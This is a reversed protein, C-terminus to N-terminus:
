SNIILTSLPHNKVILIPYILDYENTAKVIRGDVVLIGDPDLFLNLNKLLTPIEKNNLNQLYTIEKQFAQQQQMTKILYKEASKRHETQEKIHKCKDIFKFIFATVNHLKTFESFRDLPIMLEKVNRTLTNYFINDM